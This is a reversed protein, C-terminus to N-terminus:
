KHRNLRPNLEIATALCEIAEQHRGLDFLAYGKKNFADSDSPDLEIAEQHRKLKYKFRNTRLM